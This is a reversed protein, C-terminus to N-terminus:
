ATAEIVYKAEVCTSRCVGRLRETPAAAASTSAADPFSMVTNDVRIMRRQSYLVYAHGRSVLVREPNHRTGSGSPEHSLNECRSPVRFGSCEGDYLHVTAPIVQAVWGLLSALASM